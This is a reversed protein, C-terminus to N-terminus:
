DQVGYLSRIESANLARDYVRLDDLSGQFWNSNEVVGITLPATTASLTSPGSGQAIRSGDIYTAYTSGSKTVVFHHWATTDYTYAAPAPFFSGQSTKYVHLSIQSPSNNYYFIWKNNINSGDSKGLIHRISATGEFKAWYSISAEAGTLSLAALHPAQIYQDIGNFHYAANNKGFRDNTLSAGVVTGHNQNSSSDNANGDMKYHAILSKDLKVNSEEFLIGIESSSLSRNYIRIDDIKGSMWGVNEVMGITLDSSTNPVSLTGSADTVKVANIYTKYNSGSKSIVLHQWSNSELQWSASGSFKSNGGATNIHFSFQTPSYNHYVIWKNNNFTGDSKGILFRNTANNAFSVWMSITFDGSGFNLYTQNPCQIYQNTGNFSYAANQNGFRDSTSTAGFVTGNNVNASQDNANGDLPYYAILGANLDYEVVRFIGQSANDTRSYSYNRNGDGRIPKGFDTWIGSEVSYTRQVQYYRGQITDFGLGFADEANLNFTATEAQAASIFLAFFLALIGKANM